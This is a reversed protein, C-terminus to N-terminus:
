NNSEANHANTKGTRQQGSAASRRYRHGAGSVCGGTCRRFALLREMVGSLFLREGNWRADSLEGYDCVTALTCPLDVVAASIVGAQRAPYERNDLHLGLM